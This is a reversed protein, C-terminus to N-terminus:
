EFGRAAASSGRMPSFAPNLSAASAAKPICCTPFKGFGAPKAGPCSRRRRRSRRRWRASGRAASAAPSSSRGEIGAGRVGIHRKAAVMDKHPVVVADGKVVDVVRTLGFQASRQHAWAPLPIDRYIPMQEEHRGFRHISAGIAARLSNRQGRTIRRRRWWGRRGSLRIRRRAGRRSAASSPACGRRGAGVPEAAHTDEIDAIDPIRFLDGRHLAATARVRVRQHDIGFILVVNIDIDGAGPLHPLDSSSAPQEPPSGLALGSVAKNRM